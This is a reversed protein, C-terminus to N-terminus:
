TLMVQGVKNRQGSVKDKLTAVNMVKGHCFKKMCQRLLVELTCYDTDRCSIKQRLIRGINSKLKKDRCLIGQRSLIEAKKRRRTDRCTGGPKSMWCLFGQQLMIERQRMQSTVNKEHETTVHQRKDRCLKEINLGKHQSLLFITTVSKRLCKSSHKDCCVSSQQSMSQRLQEKEKREQKFKRMKLNFGAFCLNLSYDM